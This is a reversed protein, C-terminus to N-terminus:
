GLDTSDQEDTEKQLDGVRQRLEKMAQDEAAWPNKPAHITKGFNRLGNESHPRLLLIIARANVLIVLLLTGCLILLINDTKM